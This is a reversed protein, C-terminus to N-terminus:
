KTVRVSNWNLFLIRQFTDWCAWLVEYVNSDARGVDKLFVVYLTDGHFQWNRVSISETVGKLDKASEWKYEKLIEIYM